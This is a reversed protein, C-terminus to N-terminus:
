RTSPEVLGVRLRRFGDAVGHDVVGYGAASLADHLSEHVADPRHIGIRLKMGGVPSVRYRDVGHAALADVVDRLAGEDIRDRCTTPVPVGAVPETEVDHPLDSPTM